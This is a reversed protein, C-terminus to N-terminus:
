IRNKPYKMEFKSIRRISPDRLGLTLTSAERNTKDSFNCVM